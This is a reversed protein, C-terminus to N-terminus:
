GDGRWRELASMYAKRARIRARDLRTVEAERAAELKRRRQALAAEELALAKREEEHRTEADRLADEAADLAARSPAPKPKPRPELKPKRPTPSRPQGRPPGPTRPELTRPEPTGAKRPAPTAPLAAIQDAASGRSRRIVVGPQSLAEAALAPDTVREAMGLAFLDHDVGWAALAAKQSPAAVYADHFGVPTRFVKLARARAV